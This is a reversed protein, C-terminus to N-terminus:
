PKLFFASLHLLQIPLLTLGLPACVLLGTFAAGPWSPLVPKCCRCLALPVVPPKLSRQVVPLVTAEINSVALLQSGGSLTLETALMVAKLSHAEQLM